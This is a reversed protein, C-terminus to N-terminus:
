EHPRLECVFCLTPDEGDDLTERYGVYTRTDFGAQAFLRIYEGTPLIPASWPCHQLSKGGDARITEYTFQGRVRNANASLRIEGRRRVSDGTDPHAIPQSWALVRPGAAYVAPDFRRETILLKGTPALHQRIRRLCRLLRARTRLMRFSNDAIVVLGFQQELDLDAMDGRILRVRSRAAASLAAVHKRALRLMTESLDLAAVEFGGAALRCALRGTGCALVLVPGGTRGAWVEHWRVEAETLPQILEYDWGFLEYRKQEPDM